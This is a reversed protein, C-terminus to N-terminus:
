RLKKDTGARHIYSATLDLIDQNDGADFHFERPDIDRRTVNFLDLTLIKKPEPTVPRAASRDAKPTRWYTVRYPFLLVLKDTRGLIVEVKDPLQDPLDGSAASPKGTL